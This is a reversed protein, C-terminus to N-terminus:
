SRCGPRNAVKARSSKARESHRCVNHVQKTEEMVRMSSTLFAAVYVAHAVSFRHVLWPSGLGYEDASIGVNAAGSADLTARLARLSSVFGARPYKVCATVAEPTWETPSKPQDFYGSHDSTAYVHPGVEKAWAENWGVSASVAFIRLPTAPSAAVIAPVLRVLMAAYESANAPALTKM